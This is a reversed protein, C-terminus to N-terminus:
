KEKDKDHDLIQYQSEDFNKLDKKSKRMFLLVIILAPVALIVYGFILSLFDSM